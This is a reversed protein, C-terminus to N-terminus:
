CLELGAYPASVYVRRLVNSVVGQHELIALSQLYHLTVARLNLYAEEHPWNELLTRFIRLQNNRVCIDLLINCIYSNCHSIDPTTRRVVVIASLNQLTPIPDSNVPFNMMRLFIRNVSPRALKKRGYIWVSVVCTIIVINYALTVVRPM